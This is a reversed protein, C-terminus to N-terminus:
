ALNLLTRKRISIPLVTTKTEKPKLKDDIVMNIVNNKSERRTMQIPVSQKSPHKKYINSLALDLDDESTFPKKLMVNDIYSKEKITTTHGNLQIETGLYESCMFKNKVHIQNGINDTITYSLLSNNPNLKHVEIKQNKDKYEVVRDLIDYRYFQEEVFKDDVKIKRSNVRMLEDYGYIVAYRTDNIFKRITTIQDKRNYEYSVASVIKGFKDYKTRRTIKGNDYKETSYLLDNRYQEITSVSSGKYIIKKLLEGTDSYYAACTLNGYEDKILKVGFDRSTQISSISDNAPEVLKAFQQLEEPIFICLYNQVM